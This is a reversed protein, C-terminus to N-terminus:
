PGPIIEATRGLCAVVQRAVEHITVEEPNGVHYVELHAGRELLCCLGDTFDDIHTFARTQSGDGQIPFPVPGVPHRGIAEIARLAFQPIVHEWGMAPGYVNHPRFVVVRAFNTRGYNMALLESILKGGAYSYRPNKVDPITLPVSEDTPVVLACQYVESSSAVFLERIGEARCADLVNLMGRVGVDLVREPESYFFETGNVFALHIISEMGRAARRLADLDRIDGQVCEIDAVCDRLREPVGRSYDDFSRVRHGATVLRRILAAGLFGAGGTVLYATRM